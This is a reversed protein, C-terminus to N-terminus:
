RYAYNYTNSYPSYYRVQSNEVLPVIAWAMVTSFCMLVFIVNDRNASSITKSLLERHKSNRPMFINQCSDSVLNEIRKRRILLNALKVATGIHTLLLFSIESMAELDGWKMILYIIETLYYIVTMVLIMGTGYINYLLRSIFKLFLNRM